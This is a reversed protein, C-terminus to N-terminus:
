AGPASRTPSRGDAGAPCGGAVGTWWPEVTGGCVTFPTREEEARQYPLHTAVPLTTDTPLYKPRDHQHGDSLEYPCPGHAGAAVV